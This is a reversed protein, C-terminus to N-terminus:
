RKCTSLGVIGYAPCFNIASTLTFAIAIIGLVLGLTTAPNLVGILVLLIYIAVLLLRVGRDAGGMNAKM